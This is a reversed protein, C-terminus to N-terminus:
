QGGPTEQLISRLRLRARYSRIKVQALSWGMQQAVEKMSLGELYLLSFALRDAPALHGLAGDLLEKATAAAADESCKEDAMRREMALLEADSAAVTKQRRARRWYDYCANVAIRSLWHEFPSKRRYSALDRYARVFTEQAVEDVDEARVMNAAIGLVKAKHTRILEEFAATDGALVRDIQKWADNLKV